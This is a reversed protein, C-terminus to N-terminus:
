ALGLQGLYTANDWFLWEEDMVGNRWHAVTAMPLTFSRGNPPVVTGDPTKLPRTFTGRMVGTVATLDGAALRQPHELINTDPAYVFLAKLDEIHRAIGRTVHADPWHVTVNGAHSEKLRHWKQNTFVDYDLQDFTRLNAAEVRTPRWVRENRTAADASGGLVTTLALAGFSAGGATLVDRREM